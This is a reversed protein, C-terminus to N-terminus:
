QLREFGIVRPKDIDADSDYMAGRDIIAIFRATEAPSGTLNQNDYGRVVGYIVFRDSRVTYAQSLMGFRALRQENDDPVTPSNADAEDPDPHMDMGGNGGPLGNTGDIGYRLMDNDANGPNLYLLEGLSAIGPQNLRTGTTDFGPIHYDVNIANNRITQVNFGATGNSWYAGHDNGPRLRAGRLPEDRYAVITRMLKEVEDLSEGLPSALTMLHMPATNVNITGPVLLEEDNDISALDADLENNGDDNDNDRNDGRPSVTTFLDMLLAAHPVGYTEVVDYILRNKPDILLFHENEPPGTNASMRRSFHETDTFGFMHMMGLETVSRMPEDTLHLQLQRYFDFNAVVAIGTGKNDDGFRDVSSSYSWSSANPPNTVLDAGGIGDDVIFNIDESDRASSAQYFQHRATASLDSSHDIRTQLSAGPDLEMQDYKVFTGLDTKVYLEIVIDGGGPTFSATLKDDLLQVAKTSDFNLDGPM